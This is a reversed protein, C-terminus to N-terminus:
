GSSARGTLPPLDGYTEAPLRNVVGDTCVLWGLWRWAEPSAGLIRHEPVSWVAVQGDPLQELQRGIQNGTATNWIRSTRDGSTTLVQTGDPSFGSGFVWETHGTLTLLPDELEGGLDLVVQAFISDAGRAICSIGILGDGAYPALAARLAQYVLSMSGATLNMHGTVGFRAL